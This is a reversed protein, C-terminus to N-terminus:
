AVRRSRAVHDAADADGIFVEDRNRRIPLPLLQFGVVPEAAKTMAGSVRPAAEECHSLVSQCFGVNARLLDDPERATAIARSWNMAAQLNKAQLGAIELQARGVGKVLPQWWFSMVDATEFAMQFIDKYFSTNARRASMEDSM